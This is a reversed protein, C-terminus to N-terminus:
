VVGVNKPWYGVIEVNVSLIRTSEIEVVTKLSYNLKSWTVLKNIYMVQKYMEVSNRSAYM